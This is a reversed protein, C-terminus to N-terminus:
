GAGIDCSITVYIFLKIAIQQRDKRIYHRGEESVCLGDDENFNCRDLSEIFTKGRKSISVVHSIWETDVKQWLPEPCVRSMLEATRNSVFFMVLCLKQFM